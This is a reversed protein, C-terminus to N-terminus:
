RSPRPTSRRPPAAPRRDAVGGAASARTALRTAAADQPQGLARRAFLTTALRLRRDADLPAGLLREIRELRYAVTRPAIGLRRAAARVNEREALYAELTEVLGGGRPATLLPGLEQEVAERLLAPEALLARELALSSAPVVARRAGIRRAVALAATAERAAAAAALLGDAPATTAIWDDGLAGLAELVDPTRRSVPQIVLLRGHTAAVVPGPVPAGLSRPDGVVPAVGPVLRRAVDVVAPDADALDRGADAVTVSLPRDVPIGVEAARRALRARGAEDRDGLDLVEDLLERLASASRTAIEREAAAHGEAIAAAAADGTRLLADGLARLGDASLDGRGAVWGWLIWGASLARDLVPQLPRGARAEAAAEDRLTRLARVGPVPGTRLTATLWDVAAGAAAVEDASPDGGRAVDRAVELSLRSRADDDAALAVLPLLYPPAPREQVIDAPYRVSRQRVSAKDQRVDAAVSWGVPLQGM